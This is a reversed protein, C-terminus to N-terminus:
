VHVTALPRPYPVRYEAALWCVNQPRGVSALSLPSPLLPFSVGPILASLTRRITPTHSTFHSIHFTFLSFRVAFLSCRFALISIRSNLFQALCFITEVHLAQARPFPFPLRLTGLARHPLIEVPHDGRDTQYVSSSGILLILADILLLSCCSATTSGSLAMHSFNDSGLFRLLEGLRAAIMKGAAVEARIGDRTGWRALIAKSGFFRCRSVSSTQLNKFYEPPTHIM